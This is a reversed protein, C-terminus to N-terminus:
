LVAYSQFWVIRNHKINTHRIRHFFHPKEDPSFFSRFDTLASSGLKTTKENVSLPWIGHDSTFFAQKSSWRLDYNSHKEMLKSFILQEHHIRMEWNRLWSRGGNRARKGVWFTGTKKSLQGGRRRPHHRHAPRAAPGVKPSGLMDLFTRFHPFPSIDGPISQLYIEINYIYIYIAYIYIYM